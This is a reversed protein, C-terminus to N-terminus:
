PRGPRDEAEHHGVEEVRHARDDADALLGAEDVLLAPQRADAVDQDDVRSPATVPPAKPTLEFV